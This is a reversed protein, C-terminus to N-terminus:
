QVTCVIQVFKLIYLYINFILYINKNNVAHIM